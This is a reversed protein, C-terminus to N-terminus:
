KKQDLPLVCVAECLTQLLVDAAAGWAAAMQGPRHIEDHVRQGVNAPDLLQGADIVERFLAQRYSNGEPNCGHLDCTNQVANRQKAAM